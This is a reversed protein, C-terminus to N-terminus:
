PGFLANWVAALAILYFGIEILDSNGMMAGAVVLMWGWHALYWSWGLNLTSAQEPDDRKPNNNPYGRIDEVLRDAIAVLKNNDLRPLSPHNLIGLQASLAITATRQKEWAPIFQEKALKLGEEISHFQPVANLLNLLNNGIGSLSYNPPPAFGFFSKSRLM